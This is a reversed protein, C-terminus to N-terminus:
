CFVLSLNFFLMGHKKSDWKFHSTSYRYSFLMGTSSRPIKWSPKWAIESVAEAVSKRVGMHRTAEPLNFLKQHTFSQSAHCIRRKVIAM